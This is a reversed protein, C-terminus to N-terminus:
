LGEDSCHSSGFIASIILPTGNGIGGFLWLHGSADVWSSSGSRAGPVNNSAAVGQTGYVGPLPVSGGTNAGSVWTWLATTPNFQWMDNFEGPIDPNEGVGIGGFLWLNGSPDTWASAAWRAAPINGAAPIGQSGYV